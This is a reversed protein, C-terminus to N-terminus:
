GVATAVILDETNKAGEAIHDPSKRGKNGPIRRNPRVWGVVIDRNIPSQCPNLSRM